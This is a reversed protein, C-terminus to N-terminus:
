RPNNESHYNVIFGDIEPNNNLKEVTNLLEKETVDNDFRILTSEFGVEECAKVKSAVYTESGGDNGVLVAAM